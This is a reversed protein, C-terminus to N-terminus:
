RDNPRRREPHLPPLEEVAIRYLARSLMKNRISGDKLLKAMTNRGVRFVKAWCEVTDPSSWVPQPAPRPPVAHGRLDLYDALTDRLAAECNQRAYATSGEKVLRVMASFAAHLADSEKGQGFWAPFVQEHQQWDDQWEHRLLTGTVGDIVARVKPPLDNDGPRQDLLDLMQVLEADLKKRPANDFV